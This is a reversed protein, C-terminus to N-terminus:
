FRNSASGRQQKKKETVPPMFEPVVENFFRCQDSMENMGTLGPM